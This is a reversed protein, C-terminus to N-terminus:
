AQGPQVRPISLHFTTGQDESTEFWIRGGFKEVLSRCLSLGVGVGTEKTSFFPSFIQEQLHVAIGPGQDIVKISVLDENQIDSIVQLTKKGDTGSMAELGNRVLNLLIQELAAPDFAVVAAKDASIEVRASFQKAQLEILPQIQELVAAVNACRVKSGEREALGRISGIIKKIRDVENKISQHAKILAPTSPHEITKGQSLKMLCTSSYVEIAALPQNIEHSVLTSIEGLTALAASKQVRAEQARIKSETAQRAKAEQYLQLCLILAM